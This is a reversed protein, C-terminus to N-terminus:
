RLRTMSLSRTGQYALFMKKIRRDAGLSKFIVWGFEKYLKWALYCYVVETVGIMVPVIISLAAVVDDM